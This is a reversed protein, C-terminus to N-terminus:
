SLATGVDALQKILGVVVYAQLCHERCFSYPYVKHQASDGRIYIRCTLILINPCCFPRLPNHNSVGDVMWKMNM